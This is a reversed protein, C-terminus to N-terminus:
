TLATILSFIYKKPPYIKTYKPCVKKKIENFM